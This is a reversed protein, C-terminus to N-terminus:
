DDENDIPGEYFRYADTQNYPLRSALWAQKAAQLKAADPAAVFATIAAELKEGEDVSLQYTKHVLTKYTTVVQEAMAAPFMAAAVDAGASADAPGPGPKKEDDCGATVMAFLVALMAVPERGIELKMM